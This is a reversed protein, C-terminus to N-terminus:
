IPDSLSTAIKGYLTRLCLSTVASSNCSKSTTTRDPSAVTALNLQSFSEDVPLTKLISRKARPRFFSTTPQITQVHGHLHNPLSWQTTRVLHSGDDHKFVYFRTDLLKEASEVSLRVSIWDKAPSYALRDHSIDNDLLWENMGDITENTPRILQNVQDGTLHHGYRPHTPDSVLVADACSFLPLFVNDRGLPAHFSSFVSFRVKTYSDKLSM